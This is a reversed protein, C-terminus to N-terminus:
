AKLIGTINLKRVHLLKVQVDASKAVGECYLINVPVAVSWCRYSNDSRFQCTSCLQNLQRILLQAAPPHLNLDIEDVLVVSPNLKSGYLSTLYQFWIDQLTIIKHFPQGWGDWLGM